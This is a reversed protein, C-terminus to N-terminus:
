NTPPKICLAQLHPYAPPAMAAYAIAGGAEATLTGASLAHALDAKLTVANPHCHYTVLGVSQLPTIEEQAM